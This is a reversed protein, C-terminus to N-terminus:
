DESSSVELPEKELWSKITEDDVGLELLQKVAMKNSAKTDRCILLRRKWAAVAKALSEEDGSEKFLNKYLFGLNNAAKRNFPDLELSRLYAAEAKAPDKLLQYAIGLYNYVDSDEGAIELAKRVSELQKGYRRRRRYVDGAGLWAWYENPDVELARSFTELAKTYQRKLFYANGLKTVPYAFSPDKSIAIKFQVIAEDIRKQQMLMVGLNNYPVASQKEYAIAREFYDQARDYDRQVLYVEGIYNLAEGRVTDGPELELIRKLIAAASDYEKHGLYYDAQTFYCDWMRPNISVTKGFCQYASQLRGEVLLVKGLSFWANAFCPQLEIARGYSARAAELDDLEFHCHGVMWHARFNSDDAKIVGQFKELAGKFDDSNYDIYGLVELAHYHVPDAEKATRALLRAAKDDGLYYKTLALATKMGAVGGKGKELLGEMSELILHLHEEGVASAAIAYEFWGTFHVPDLATAREAAELAQPFMGRVNYAGALAAFDSASGHEDATTRFGRLEEDIMFDYKADPKM